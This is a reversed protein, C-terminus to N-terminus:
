HRETVDMIEANWNGDKDRFFRGIALTILRQGDLQEDRRLRFTKAQLDLSWQFGGPYRVAFDRPSKKFVFNRAAAVKKGVPSEPEVISKLLADIADDIRLEDMERRVARDHWWLAFGNATSFVVALVLAVSIHKRMFETEKRPGATM